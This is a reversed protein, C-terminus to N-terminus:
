NRKATWPLVFKRGESWTSGVISDGELCGSSHYFGSGDSTRFAVCTRGQASGAQGAVIESDYFSGTVGGDAKISLVMTKSYPADDLSPRLDVTWTGAFADRPAAPAAAALVSSSVFCGFAFLIVRM